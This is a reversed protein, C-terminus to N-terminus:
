DEVRAEAHPPASREGDWGGGMAKFLTATANLRDRLAESLALEADLLAREADLLEIFGTFGEEYRIEALDRTEQIAQVQRRVAGVREDTAEYLVLADRVERFAQTMTMAYRTEAQDRLAEATEVRARARGFDFLPGAVTAGVGWTEASRTFLDSTETAATGLFGMLNLRPLRDAEAVGIEATSAMLEAEAARIDPRRRLLESPMVAPVHAPLELDALRRDGFDLEDLLERPSMGVLVALAGELTQVQQRLSPIRARTTELEAVSQRLVLADTQGGEYRIQELELTRERSEVTKEAIALQEQASRLNVYTAVVDAVVNLRVAEHSFRSQQLFAEAAEEQRALRGWLDLEYGLIGTISFLNDTGGGGPIPSLGEPQRERAAEAQADLTPLRNAEALGLRARSEQIRQVQLRVDLNDDLARAVLADLQPDQYRTWWQQWAEQEEASLLVHEPWDEPLDFDPREYDPGVACGGLLFAAAVTLGWKRM